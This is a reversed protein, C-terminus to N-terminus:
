LVKSMDKAAEHMVQVSALLDAMSVRATPGHCAIAAIMRGQADLVPVAVAVMGLVFEENDVGVRRQRITIFERELKKRDTITRVTHASLTVRDLIEQQLAKDMMALMLKGTATCHLPVHAGVDMRLGLLHRTEVRELYRMSDGELATLNCSEGTAEVLRALITRSARSFHPTELIGLALRVARPGLVFGREGPVQVAFGSEVLAALIRMLSTKPQDLRQALQALTQAHRTRSLQELLRPIRLYHDSFDTM